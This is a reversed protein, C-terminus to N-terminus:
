VTAKDKLMYMSPLRNSTCLRPWLVYVTNSITTMSSCILEIDLGFRLGCDLGRTWDM